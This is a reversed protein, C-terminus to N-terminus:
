TTLRSQRTTSFRLAMQKRKELRKRSSRMVSTGYMKKMLWSQAEPANEDEGIEPSSGLNKIMFFFDQLPSIAVLEEMVVGRLNNSRVYDTALINVGQLAKDKFYGELIVKKFDENKELRGLAEYASVWYDNEVTYLEKESAGDTNCQAPNILM